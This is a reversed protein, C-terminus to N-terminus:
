RKHQLHHSGDARGRQKAAWAVFRALAPHALLADRSAYSAALTAEDAAEHVANHCQRCCALTRALHAQTVGRARHAAHQSRPVLHHQTLPMRRECLECCGPPLAEGAAADQEIRWLDLLRSLHSALAAAPAQEDDLGLSAAVDAVRSTLLDLDSTPADSLDALLSERLCDQTMADCTMADCASAVAAACLRALTLEDPWPAPAPFAPAPADADAPPPASRQASRRGGLVM